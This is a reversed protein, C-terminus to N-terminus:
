GHSTDEQEIERRLQRIARSLWSRVTGDSARLIRGIEDVSLDEYYRLIVAARHPAPLGDIRGLMDRRAVMRDQESREVPSGAIGRTVSEERAAKRSRSIALHILTTRLYTWFADRHRVHHLRAGVRVFADQVLDDADEENRTMLYALRKADPAYRIYMAELTRGDDVEGPPLPDPTRPM